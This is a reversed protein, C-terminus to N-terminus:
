DVWHLVDRVVSWRPQKARATQGLIWHRYLRDFTHDRLKLEVWTDLYERWEWEARGVAYALPISIPEPTPVVVTYRPYILTWAGGAEAGYALASVDELQERFFPRASEVGVLVADPLLRRLLRRYHGTAPAAIRVSKMALISEWTAWAHRAHDPVVFALTNDLYPRSFSMQEEREPTLTIGSMAVDCHGQDLRNAFDDRETKEFYVAVDLSRALAHAVDVDFGVLRSAENVFAFPLSDDAYCVRLAGSARIRRLPGNKLDSSIEPPADLVRVPDGELEMEVFLQYTKADLDLAHSFYLRAGLLVAVAGVLSIGAWRLLPLWRVKVRHEIWFSALVALCLVHMAAVLVSFRGTVVDVALFVQFLDSPLRFLDLMFPIAMTNPGFFTFTGVGILTPLQTARLDGGSFWGAFLIFSLGLLKGASPFNFSVPVIVEALSPEERDDGEGITLRRAQAALIPLVVLLSGTAFGTVLADRSLGVIQRYRLPTLVAVFGPLAWLALFLSLAAFTVVFVQLREFEELTTTGAASAMLAFVGYPALGVVFTNVRLLADALVSIQEVLPHKSPLSLLAVGVSISFLVIAPMIGHVMADFPNAPIYLSLLDIKQPAETLASSFFSATQYTPFALPFLAVAGLAVVWLIALTAGGRLALARAESPDLRGLGAILSAIVYPIVTMQLLRVFARGIVDFWTALDGLVLGSAVGLVLGILVRTSLSLRPIRVRRL